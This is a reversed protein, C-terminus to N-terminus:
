RFSFPCIENSKGCAAVKETTKTGDKQRTALLIQDWLITLNSGESEPRSSGSASV